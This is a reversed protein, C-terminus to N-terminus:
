VHNAIDIALLTVDEHTTVLVSGPFAIAGDGPACHQHNVTASGGIFVLYVARGKAVDFTTAEGAGLRAMSAHADQRLGIPTVETFAPGLEPLRAVAYRPKGGPQTPRIWIQLLHAPHAGPNTEAHVIGEGASMWQLSGAPMTLKRGPERHVVEGALVFTLIEMDQHTHLPFATGPDLTADALVLLDGLAVGRGAEPGVTAVFHDTMRVWGLDTEPLASRPRLTITSLPLHRPATNM